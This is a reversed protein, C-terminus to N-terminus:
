VEFAETMEADDRVAKLEKSVALVQDRNMHCIRDLEDPNGFNYDNKDILIPVGREMDNQLLSRRFSVKKVPDPSKAEYKYQEELTLEKPQKKDIIDRGLDSKM